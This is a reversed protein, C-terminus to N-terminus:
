DKTAENVVAYIHKRDDLVKLLQYCINKINM